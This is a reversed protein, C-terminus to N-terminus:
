ERLDLANTLDGMPQFGNAQLAQDRGALGPLIPLDWRRTILRLISTTDYQTHDVFGRKAFPSVILAPIRTGPGWRDGKPPAVHDWFGGAEDYTVIVLMRPWQPSKELHDIVDAVHEDGSLVNAYGPHENLTGQPKYFSVNPLQGADIAKIFESGNIGGDRLHESRASTGPAYQAFYNFPQHHSMFQYPRSDIHDPHNLADQWAGAYWAWSVGKRSLLDGITDATQPPLAIESRPDTPQFPPQMTNVAYFDPTLPGTSIFKPPGDIASAPSGAAEKLTVGDEEVAATFKKALARNSGSFVPTCACILWQHNLFSGGFAAQFFNDALVYKLAYKWTPLKSGDYHGLSLAGSNGWAVFKDNKGGDIQMQSEYFAHVLDRTAFELGTNLGDPRDIDIPSNPLGATKGEGDSHAADSGILGGWVPPLQKLLSGDRDRQPMPNQAAQKLGNANPFQGYLNDFSRNEAYIVVVTDIKSLPGGKNGAPTEAVAFGCLPLACHVLFLSVLSHPVLRGLM